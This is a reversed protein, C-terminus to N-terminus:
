QNYKKLKLKRTQISSTKSVIIGIVLFRISQVGLRVGFEPPMVIIDGLAIDNCEPLVELTYYRTGSVINLPCEENLTKVSSSKPATFYLTNDSFVRKIFVKNGSKFMSVLTSYPNVWGMTDYYKIEGGRLSGDVYISIPAPLTTSASVVEEITNSQINVLQRSLLRDAQRITITVDTTGGIVSSQQPIESLFDIMNSDSNKSMYPMEIMSRIPHRIVGFKDDVIINPTEESGEVFGSYVIDYDVLTVLSGSRINETINNRLLKITMKNMEEVNWEVIYSLMYASLDIGGMSLVGSRIPITPKPHPAPPSTYDVNVGSSELQKDVYGLEEFTRKKVISYTYTGSHPPYDIFGATGFIETPPAYRSGASGEIVPTTTSSTAETRVLYLGYSVFDTSIAEDGADAKVTVTGDGNDVASTITPATMPDNYTKDDSWDSYQYYSACSGSTVKRVLRFHHTSSTYLFIYKDNGSGNNIIAHHSLDSNYISYHTGNEDEIWYSYTEYLNTVNLTTDYSVTGITHYDTDTQISVNLTPPTPEAYKDATVVDSSIIEGLYDKEIKYYNTVTTDVDHDYVWVHPTGWLRWERNAYRAIETWDNGDTSHYAVLDYIPSEYIPDSSTGVDQARSKVYLKVNCDHPTATFSPKIKDVMGADVSNNISYTKEFVCSSDSSSDEIKYTITADNGYILPLIRDNSYSFYPLIMNEFTDNAYHRAFYGENPVFGKYQGDNYYRFPISYELGGSSNFIQATHHYVGENSTKFCLNNDTNYCRAAFGMGEMNSTAAGVDYGAKDSEEYLHFSTPIDQEPLILLDVLGEEVDSVILNDDEDYSQGLYEKIVRFYYHTGEDPNKLTAHSVPISKEVEWNTHWISYWSDWNTGDTSKQVRLIYAASEKLPDSSTGHKVSRHMIDFEISCKGVRLNIINPRIKDADSATPKVDGIDHTATVDNGDKDEMTAEIHIGKGYLTPVITDISYDYRPFYYFYYMTSDDDNHGNFGESSSSPVLAGNHIYTSLTAWLRRSGNYDFYLNLDNKKDWKFCDTATGGESCYFVGSIGEEHGNAYFHHTLMDYIPKGSAISEVDGIKLTASM